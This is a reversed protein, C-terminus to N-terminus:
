PTTMRIHTPPALTGSQQPETQPEPDPLSELIEVTHFVWDSEQWSTDPKARTIMGLQYQRFETIGVEECAVRTATPPVAGAWADDIFIAIRAAYPIQEAPLPDWEISCPITGILANGSSNAVAALWLMAIWIMTMRSNM